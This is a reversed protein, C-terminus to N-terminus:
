WFIMLEYPTLDRSKSMSPAAMASVAAAARLMDAM